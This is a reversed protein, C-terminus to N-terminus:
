VSVLKEGMVLHSPGRGSGAGAQGSPLSDVAVSPGRGVWLSQFGRRALGEEGGAWWDRKDRTIPPREQSPEREGMETADRLHQVCANVRPDKGARAAHRPLASVSTFSPSPDPQPAHPQDRVSPSQGKGGVGGETSLLPSVAGGGEGGLLHPTQGPVARGPGKVPSCPKHSSSRTGPAKDPRLVARSGEKLRSKSTSARRALFATRALIGEGREGVGVGESSKARGLAM